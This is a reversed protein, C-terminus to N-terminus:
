RGHIFNSDRVCDIRHDPPESALTYEDPPLLLQLDDCGISTSVVESLHEPSVVGLLLILVLQQGRM